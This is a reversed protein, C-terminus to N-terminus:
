FKNIDNGTSEWGERQERAFYEIKSGYCISEVMTYFQDPKRSHERRKERIIDRFTTNDWIPNGKIGFLCFETQMRLWHGMGINEKDWTLIAKYKFGWLNLLEKADWIFKHTTWLWIISNDSSKLVMNKLEDQSMEPYPNAVRSGDPDYERGYNWPPDIVIVDYVGTIEPITKINEKQKEISEIRTKIKEEKKVEVLTRGGSWIEKALEPKEVQLKEFETATTAYRKVTREGIKYEDALKTATPILTGIQGISKRDGGHSKKERNYRRGIMIQRQDPTLNRRSLQNFDMWDKVQEIDEFEKQITKFEVGYRTCIEYRNHGDILTDQWLILADRCGDQKISEELNNYEEATLPPILNKLQQNIIMSYLYFFGMVLCPDPCYRQLTGVEYWM